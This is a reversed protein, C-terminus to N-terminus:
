EFKFRIQFPVKRAGVGARMIPWLQKIEHDAVGHGQFIVKKSKFPIQGNNHDFCLICVLM